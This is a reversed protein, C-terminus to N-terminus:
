YSILYIMILHEVIRLEKYKVNYFQNIIVQNMTECLNQMSSTFSKIFKEMQTFRELEMSQM